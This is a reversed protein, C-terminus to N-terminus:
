ADTWITQFSAHSQIKTGDNEHSYDHVLGSTYKFIGYYLLIISM